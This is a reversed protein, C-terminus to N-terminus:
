PSGRFFGAAVNAAGLAIIEQNSDVEQGARLAFARSLTSMDAFSVLAIAAAAAFLASFETFSIAPIQFQPLGQPLPGVVAIGSSAALNLWSSIITAGAVAILM